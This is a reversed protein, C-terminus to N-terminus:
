EILRTLVEVIKEKRKYADENIMKILRNTVKRYPEIAQSVYYDLVEHKLVKVADNADFEYICITKDKVEGSLSKTPDPMWKVSLNENLALKVKLLELEKELVDQIDVNRKTQKTM